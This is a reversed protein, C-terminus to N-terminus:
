CCEHAKVSYPLFAPELHLRRPL